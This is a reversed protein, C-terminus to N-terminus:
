VNHMKGNSMVSFMHYLLRALSPLVGSGLCACFSGLRVPFPGASVRFPVFCSLACRPTCVRRYRTFKNTARSISSFAVPCLFLWYVACAVVARSFGPFSGSSVTLAIVSHFAFRAPFCVSLGSTHYKGKGKEALASLTYFASEQKNSQRYALLM